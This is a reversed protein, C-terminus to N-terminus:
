LGTGVRAPREKKRLARRRLFPYCFVAVLIIVVGWYFQASLEEQENLLLWALAIGYVPELNITLNSAFASLHQLSRLALVYALTTCILSLVLLYVWDVPRPPLFEGELVEGLAMQGALIISVFLWASGLELFTISIEDLKGINKKNLTTFFASILASLIGLALGGLMSIDLGDVILAMGPIILVGLFLEHGKLKKRLILPELVATFFSATAMAVLTTSANSLKIAGFFTLWQFAVLLGIGMFRLLVGSPIHRFLQRVRVLALLSVSTLFVRWWVLVLAPLQILDGLIATFGFLLVALHLELYSRRESEM